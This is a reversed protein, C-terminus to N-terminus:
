AVIAYRVKGFYVKINKELVGGSKGVSRKKEPKSGFKNM